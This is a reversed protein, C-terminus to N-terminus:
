AGARERIEVFANIFFRAIVLAPGRWLLMVERRFRLVSGATLRFVVALTEAPRAGARVARLRFVPSAAPSDPVDPRVLREAFVVM